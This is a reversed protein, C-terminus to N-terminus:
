RKREALIGQLIEIQQTFNAIEKPWYSNVLGNLQQPSLGPAVWNQPNAIKDQHTAIQQRLSRISRHIQNDTKTSHDKLFGEHRGGSKAIDYASPKVDKLIAGGL